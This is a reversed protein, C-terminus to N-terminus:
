NGIQFDSNSALIAEVKRQRIIVMQESPLLKGLRQNDGDIQPYILLKRNKTADADEVILTFEPQTLGLSDYTPFEGSEIYQDVLLNTTKELYDMMKVTDVEKVAAVKFFNDKYAIDLQALHDREAELKLSKLSSWSTEFALKNRWDSVKLEFLGALYSTYGPIYVAYPVSEATKMMYSTTRTANGGVYFASIANKGNYFKVLVGDKLLREAIEGNGPGGVARSTEVSTMVAFILGAMREDMPYKQNIQWKGDLKQFVLEQGTQELTIKNVQSTDIMTFKYRDINQRPQDNDLLIVSANIM